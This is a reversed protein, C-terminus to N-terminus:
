ASDTEVTIRDLWANLDAGRYAVRNGIKLYRPGTGLSRWRALTWYGVGLQRLAEDTAQYLMEPKFTEPNFM